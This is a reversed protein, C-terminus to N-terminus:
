AGDRPPQWPLRWPRARPEPPLGFVVIYARRPQDTTNPGAHHLMYSHHLTASGVPCPVPVGNASWYDQDQAVLATQPDDPDLYAHPLIPGLHSGPVFQMCGGEITAGDLALWFNVNRYTEDPRHYAQDQHWPTAIGYGAPKLIMHEGRREAADGFIQRAIAEIRRYYATRRLAPVAEGPGLVQPLAQRGRDDVGGLAKRRVRGEAADSFCWDYIERLAALDDADIVGDVRCFGEARFRGAADTDFAGADVAFFPERAAPTRDM